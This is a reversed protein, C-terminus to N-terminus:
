LITFDLAPSLRCVQKFSLKRHLDLVGPFQSWTTSSHHLSSHRKETAVRQQSISARSVSTLRLIDDENGFVTRAGDSRSCKWCGRTLSASLSVPDVLGSPLSRQSAVAHARSRMRAGALPCRLKQEEGGTSTRLGPACSADPSSLVYM